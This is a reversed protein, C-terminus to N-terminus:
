EDLTLSIHPDTAVCCSATCVRYNGDDAELDACDVNEKGVHWGNM